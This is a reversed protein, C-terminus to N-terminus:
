GVGILEEVVVAPKIGAYSDKGHLLDVKSRDGVRERLEERLCM